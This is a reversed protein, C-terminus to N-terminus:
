NLPVIFVWDHDNKDVTKLDLLDDKIEYAISDLRHLVQVPSRPEVNSDTSYAIILHQRLENVISWPKRVDIRLPDEIGEYSGFFISHANAEGNRSGNNLGMITLKPCGIVWAASSFETQKQFSSWVM